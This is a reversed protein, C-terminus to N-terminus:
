STRRARIEVVGEDDSSEEGSIEVPDAFPGEGYGAAGGGVAAGFQSAGEEEEEEDRRKVEGM